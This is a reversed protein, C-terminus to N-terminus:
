SCNRVLCGTDRTQRTATWPWDVPLPGALALEVFRRYAARPMMVDIDDDWPIPGGHRIAGLISGESLYYRLGNEATGM